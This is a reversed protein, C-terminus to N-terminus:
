LIVYNKNIKKINTAKMKRYLTRESLGLNTAASKITKYKNLASLISVMKSDELLTSIETTPNYNIGASKNLLSGSGLDARGILYILKSELMYAEHSSLKDKVKIIIPEKNQKQIVDVVNALETNKANSIHQNSREGYGKGVYIPMHNFTYEGYNYNGSVLPNLYVYVYYPHEINSKTNTNLEVLSINFYSLIAEELLDDVTCKETFALETLKNAIKDSVNFSIEAM